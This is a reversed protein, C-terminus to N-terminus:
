RTGAREGYNQVGIGIAGPLVKAATGFGEKQYAEAFDRWMLPTVRDVVGKKLEFKEYIATKGTIADLFFSPVPATKFRIFKLGMDVATEWSKSKEGTFRRKIADGMRYFLRMPQQIGALFDYRINGWKIKLFDPDDPEFNVEAGAASALALTAAIMGSFQVMDAMQNKLVARGAATTANRGYTLPNLVQIRSAAYRPAFLTKSLLPMASEFTKGLSGRGTAVNIWDAAAKYADEKQEATLRGKDISKKYRAFTEIRLTDLYAKYAQESHKVIPIHQTWGSLFDEETQRLGTEDTSLYLGADKATEADRHLNIRKQIDRYHSKTIQAGFLRIDPIMAEFMRVGAKAAKGWQTPPLTLMAGQRLPASIDTSAMIARPLNVADAAAVKAKELKTRPPVFFKRGDALLDYLAGGDGKQTADAVKDIFDFAKQELKPDLSASMLVANKEKQTQAKDYKAREAKPLAAVMTDTYFKRAWKDANWGRPLAYQAPSKPQKAKRSFLGQINLGSALVQGQGEPIRGFSFRSATTGERRERRETPVGARSRGTEGTAGIRREGRPATELSGRQNETRGTETERRAAELTPQLKPDIAGFKQLARKGHKEVVAGFYDSLFKAAQDANMGFVGYDGSAVFAAAEYDHTEPAYGRRGLEKHIDKANPQSDLWNKGTLASLDAAIRSQSLHATEHRIKTKTTSIPEVPRRTIFAVDQQNAEADAIAADMQRLMADMNAVQAPEYIGSGKADALYDRLEKADSAGITFNADTTSVNFKESLLRNIMAGGWDNAVLTGPRNRSPRFTLQANEFLQRGTYREPMIGLAERREAIKPQTAKKVAAAVDEKKVPLMRSEFKAPLEKRRVRFKREENLSIQHQILARKDDRALKVIGRIEDNRLKEVALLHEDFEDSPITAPNRALLDFEETTASRPERSTRLDRADSQRSDAQSVRRPVDGRDPQRVKVLGSITEGGLGYQEATRRFEDLANNDGEAARELLNVADPDDFLSDLAAVEREAETRQLDPLAAIQKRTSGMDANAGDIAQQVTDLSLGREAWFAKEMEYNKVANALNEVHRAEIGNKQAFSQLDRLIRRGEASAAGVEYLRDVAESNRAVMDAYPSFSVGSPEGPRTVEGAPRPSEAESRSIARRLAGTDSDVDAAIQDFNPSVEQQANYEAEEAELRRGIEGTNMVREQGSVDRDIAAWLTDLNEPDVDYGDEALQRALIDPSSIPRNRVIGVRRADKVSQLEGAYRDSIGGLEQIRSILRKAPKAKAQQAEQRAIGRNLRGTFAQEPMEPIGGEPNQVAEPRLLPAAIAKQDQQQGGVAPSVDPFAEQVFRTSAEEAEDFSEFRGGERPTIMRYRGTEDDHLKIATVEIGGDDARRSSVTVRHPKGEITVMAPSKPQSQSFPASEAVQNESIPNDPIRSIGMDRKKIGATPANAQKAIQRAQVKAKQMNTAAISVERDIQNIRSVDEPTKPVGLKRRLLKLNRHTTEYTQAAQTFDGAQEFEAARIKAADAEARLAGTATQPASPPQVVEPMEEGLLRARRALLPDTVAPPQSEAANLPETPPETPEVVLNRKPVPRDIAPTSTASPAVRAAQPIQTIQTPGITTPRLDLPAGPESRVAQTQGATIRSALQEPISAPQMQQGAYDAAHVGGSVIGGLIAAELVGKSQERDKDYQGVTAANVNGMWQQFAEQGSNELIEIGRQLAARKLGWRELTKGLGVLESLGIAGGLMVARDYRAPDAERHFGAEKMERAIEDAGLGVGAAGIGIRFPAGIARTAAGIKGFGAASGLGSAIKSSWDQDRAPDVPLADEIGKQASEMPPAVVPSWDAAEPLRNGTIRQLGGYMADAIKATGSIAGPITGVAARGFRAIKDQAWNPQEPEPAIRQAQPGPALIKERTTRTDPQKQEAAQQDQIRELAPKPRPAQFANKPRAQPVPKAAPALARNALKQAETPARFDMSVPSEFGSPDDPYNTTYGRHEGDPPHDYRPGPAFISRAKQRRPAPVSPSRAEMFSDIDSDGVSPAKVVPTKQRKSMFSDIDDDFQPPKIKNTQQNYM